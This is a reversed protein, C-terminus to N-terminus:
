LWQYMIRQYNNPLFTARLHKKMKEWITVKSKGLRSRTMKFQQWWTTARGQLRTAILPVKMEEPVGKFEMVEEATCLWDILEKPLLRGQFEPM